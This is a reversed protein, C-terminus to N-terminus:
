SITGLNGMIQETIRPPPNGHLSEHILIIINHFIEYFYDKENEEWLKSHYFHIPESNNPTWSWIMLAFPPKYCIDDMIYSSMYFPNPEGKSKHITYVGIQKVLNDFLLKGWNFTFGLAVEHIIPVWDFTFHTLNKKGYMRCLMMDIYMIHADCLNTSYVGHCDAKFKKKM